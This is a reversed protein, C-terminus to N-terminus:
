AEAFRFVVGVAASAFIWVIPHVKKTKKIGRTVLLVALALLVLKWKIASFVALIGARMAPLSINSPLFTMVAVSLGAATILGTSAPRLRKFVAQVYHNDQFNKLFAAVILITIISPAILGLTAILAGPLGAVTYGTYTAMNVGLPGPTSESVAIMDTLQSQSFWGTAAGMKALFPLTALGGGVAFLGTKFFEWFLRLYMM